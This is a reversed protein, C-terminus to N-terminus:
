EEIDPHRFFNNTKKMNPLGETENEHEEEKWLKRLLQPFIEECKTGENKHWKLNIMQHYTNRTNLKQLSLDRSRLEDPHFAELETTNKSEFIGTNWNIKSEFCSSRYASVHAAM